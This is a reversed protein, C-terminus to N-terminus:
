KNPQGYDLRLSPIIMTMCQESASYSLTKAASAFLTKDALRTPAVCSAHLNDVVESPVGLEILATAPNEEFRQRYADDTALKQYLAALHKESLTAEAM